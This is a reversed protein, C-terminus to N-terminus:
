EVTNFYSGSWHKRNAAIFDLCQASFVQKYLAVTAGLTLCLLAVVIVQELPYSRNSWKQRQVPALLGVMKKIPAVKERMGVELGRKM